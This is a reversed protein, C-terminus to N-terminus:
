QYSADYHIRHIFSGKWRKTIEIIEETSMALDQNLQFPVKEDVHIM